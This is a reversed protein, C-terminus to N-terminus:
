QRPVTVLAASGAPMSLRFAGGARVLTEVVKKGTLVGDATTRGYTQGAFTVGDKSLVSPASLREVRAKAGGQPVRLVIQRARESDKNIVVVRRTGAPDVTAWTKTAANPSNPAVPLLRAGAPLARDFLLMGYFLPHVRAVLTGQSHVFDVPSYYAGNWSHFDVNAVGAEALGFLMDTGWLASAFANSVGDVGGCNASNTESVRFAAGHATAVSALQEM